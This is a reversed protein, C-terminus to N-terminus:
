FEPILRDLVIFGVVLAGAVVWPSNYWPTTLQDRLQAIDQDRRAHDAREDDLKTELANLKATYVAEQHELKLELSAVNVKECLACQIATERPTLMGTCPAPDGAALPAIKTCPALLIIALLVHM